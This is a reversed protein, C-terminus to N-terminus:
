GLLHVNDQKIIKKSSNNFIIIESMDRNVGLAIDKGLFYNSFYKTHNDTYLFVCYDWEVKNNSAVRIRNEHDHGNPLDLIIGKAENGVTFYYGVSYLYNGSLSM